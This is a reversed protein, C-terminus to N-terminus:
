AARLGGKLESMQNTLLRLDQAQSACIEVLKEVARTNRDMLDHTRVGMEQQVKLEREMIELTKTTQSQLQAILIEKQRQDDKREEAERAQRTIREQREQEMKSVAKRSDEERQRLEMVQRHQLWMRALVGISSIIALVAAGQQMPSM